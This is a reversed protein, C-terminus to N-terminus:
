APLTRELLAQLSDAFAHPDDVPEGELVRATDLLLRAAVEIEATAKGSKAAKALAAILAHSPNIELIPASVDVGATKQKALLKELTRDLGEGDAVLCVASGTLRSSKRVDRVKGGLTQKMLAILTGTAAADAEPAAADGILAIADLGAAGMTVSTFPKGEYGLATRVWFSDVPDTLLLVEVGRARYGELQPSRDAKAANEATLYYIATQNTKLGAIYDKLGVSGAKTSRFRVFDFLRDRNDMDEYLGVKIM